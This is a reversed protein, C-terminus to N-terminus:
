LCRETLPSEFGPADGALKAVGKIRIFAPQFYRDPCIVHYLITARTIGPTFWSSARILPQFLEPGIGSLSAKFVIM